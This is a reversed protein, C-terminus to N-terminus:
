VRSWSLECGHAEDFDAFFFVDCNGVAADM